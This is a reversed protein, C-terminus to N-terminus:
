FKKWLYQKNKYENITNDKLLRSLIKFYLDQLIDNKLDINYIFDVYVYPNELKKLNSIYVLSNYVIEVEKIFEGYSQQDYKYQEAIPISVPGSESLKVIMYEMDRYFHFNNVIHFYRGVELGLLNAVIMQLTTFNFVNVASFGWILDNSRMYVTLDLKGNVVMFQLERTCPFDKTEKFCDKAADGIHIIAQRSNIDQKLKEVVFKLQDVQGVTQRFIHSYKLFTIMHDDIVGSYHRIRCGYGGRMFKGDDSFTYLNPTIKGSLALGNVGALIEVLEAAPLASNWNRAKNHIMNAAPNNLQITVPHPLEICNHDRTERSVGNLLLEKSMGILASDLDSFEYVKM